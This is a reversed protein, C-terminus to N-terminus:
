RTQPLFGVFDKGQTSSAKKVKKLKLAEYVKVKLDDTIMGREIEKSLGDISAGADICDQKTPRYKEHKTKNDVQLVKKQVEDLTDYLPSGVNFKLVDLITSVKANGLTMPIRLYEKLVWELYSNFGDMSSDFNGNDLHRIASELREKSSALISSMRHAEEKSREEVFSKVYELISIASEMDSMKLSDEDSTNENWKRWAGILYVAYDPFLTNANALVNAFETCIVPDNRFIKDEPVNDELARLDGAGYPKLLKEKKLKEFKDTLSIIM